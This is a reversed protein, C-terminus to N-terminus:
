HPLNRPPPPPHIPPTQEVLALGLVPHRSLFQDRVRFDVVKTIMIDDTWGDM